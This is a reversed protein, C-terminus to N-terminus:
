RVLAAVRYGIGRVTEILEHAGANDLKRRLNAVHVELARRDSDTVLGSGAEGRLRLTGVLQEKSCVKGCAIALGALLEFESRTLAVLRGHLRAERQAVCLRVAGANLWGTEPVAVSVPGYEASRRLVAEIRARMERARFPKAIYDDAGASLGLVMDIEDVRGSVIVVRTSSLLRIRRLTEFGDVGPMNVDLTTIEPAFDRVLHLGTPGDAAVKVDFGAGGLIAALLGGVDPDDDIM